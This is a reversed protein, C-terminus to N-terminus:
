PNSEPSLRSLYQFVANKLFMYDSIFSLALDSKIHM